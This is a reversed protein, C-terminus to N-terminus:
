ETSVPVYRRVKGKGKMQLQNRDRVRKLLDYARDNDVGLIERGEANSNSGHKRVHAIIRDDDTAPMRSDALERPAKLTYYTWWSVGQQDVLGAQMLGRLEQGVIVGDVRNLRCYLANNMHDLQRM